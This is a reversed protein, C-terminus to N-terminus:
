DKLQTDHSYYLSLQVLASIIGVNERHSLENAYFFIIDPGDYASVSANALM